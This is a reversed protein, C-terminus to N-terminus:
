TIQGQKITDEFIQILTSSDYFYFHVRILCNKIPIIIRQNLSGDKENM